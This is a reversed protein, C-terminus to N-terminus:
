GSLRIVNNARRRATTAQAAGLKAMAGAHDDKKFLHTYVTETTRPSAHGMFAAVERIPVDHEACISAYTHRLAHFKLAPPLMAARDKTAQATRNARLVAPRFVAKYFTGHRLPESWDLVLRAEAEEVTLAALAAVQQQARATATTPADSKLGTPRPPVLRMNPFLPADLNDGYPHDSLYDRLVGVTQPPLPVTRRSGKTKPDYYTAEGGIVRVTWDVRLQGTTADPLKVDGVRLACLEAARLGSWAALHAYVNYPWPLADVLAEVQTPTLFMAPDDVVGVTRGASHNTPLKVHDAPNAPLRYDIVAQELVMRVIEYTHRVTSPKKGADTMRQVWQQIGDRTIANIPYGGWVADIGLTKGDGRREGKPRLAYRYGDLTSPKLEDRRSDLWAQAADRFLIAGAKPDVSVGRALKPLVETALWNRAAKRTDFLGHNRETGDPNRWGALWGNNRKRTWGNTSM